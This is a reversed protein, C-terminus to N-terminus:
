NTTSIKQRVLAEPGAFEIVYLGAATPASIHQMGAVLPGRAFEQGNIGYIRYSTYDDSAKFILRDGVQYVLDQLDMVADDLGVTNLSLHLAFRPDVQTWGEHRFSYDEQSLDHYGGTLKDELYVEYNHGGTVQSLKVQFKTGPNAYSFGMPLVKTGNLELANVAIREGLDWTFVNPMTPGNTMKWADYAGDFGNTTGTINSIWLQDMIASDGVKEVTIVLNDPLTKYYTPTSAVTGNAAMTTSISAGAQTAQVWFAQM